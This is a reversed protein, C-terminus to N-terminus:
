TQARPSSSAYSATRTRTPPGSGRRTPSPTSSAIGLIACTRTLWSNAFPAGNNAYLVGPLGLHTIAQRLLDQCARVNEHAFFRGDVILRPHAHVIPSLEARFAAATKPFPVFPGVLVDGIWIRMRDPDLTAGSRGAAAAIRGQRGALQAPPYAALAADGIAFVGDVGTRMWEDVRVFGREDIEVGTEDALLGDSYPRRGVSVIVADVDVREGEGFLVTTGNKRPEHGKVAVGTRVAIGRKEFSKVVVNAVDKDCGPLIGPMAELLTVKSGLDAMMSAFECGIAGGGIVVVDKDRFLYGDCTSCYSLGKGFYEDEGKVGLKKHSTGTTIAVSKGFYDGESTSVKIKGGEKTLSFVEANERIKAYETAHNIFERALKTGEIAKFGLYNEVLPSEATLGGAVQKDLVIASLGARVAYVVASLGAAGAGIVIFDYNRPVEEESSKRSINFQLDM